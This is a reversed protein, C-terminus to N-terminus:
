TYVIHTAQVIARCLPCRNLRKTCQDCSCLHFCPMLVYRRRRELCIVCKMDSDASDSAPTKTTNTTNTTNADEGKPETAINSEQSDSEQPEYGQRQQLSSWVVVGNEDVNDETIHGDLVMRWVNYRNTRPTPAIRIDM